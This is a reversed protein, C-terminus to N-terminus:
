SLNKSQKGLKRFNDVSRQVYSIRIYTKDQTAACNLPANKGLLVPSSGTRCTNAKCPLHVGTTFLFPLATKTINPIRLWAM